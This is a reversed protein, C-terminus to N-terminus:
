TKGRRSRTADSLEGAEDRTGPIGARRLENLDFADTGADRASELTVGAARAIECVDTSSRRLRHMEALAVSFGHLWADMRSPQARRNRRPRRGAVNMKALICDGLRYEHTTEANYADAIAAADRAGRLYDRTRM